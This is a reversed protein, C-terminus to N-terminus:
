SPDPQPDVELDDAASERKASRRLLSFLSDICPHSIVLLLLIGAAILESM